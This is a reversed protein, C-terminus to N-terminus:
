AVPPMMQEPSGMEPPMGGPVGPIPGPSMQPPPAVDSQMPEAPPETTAKLLDEARSIWDRILNLSKEGMKKQRALNYYSNGLKLCLQLDDYPEPSIFVGTDLMEEINKEIIHYSSLTLQTYRDTDPMDLLDLGMTKDVLGASMMLNVYELKGAPESPLSSVPFVQMIYGDKDIKIEDFDLKELGEKRSFSSVEYTGQEEYIKHVLDIMKTACKIHFDEYRRATQSFRETEINHYTSLAKGSDLGAPKEGKASLESLGVIGYGKQELYEVQHFQDPHVSPNVHYIPPNGRYKIIIGPDSTFHLPNIASGEEIFIKPSASLRMCTQIHMLIRNLEIQIGTLEEPIGVGFFGLIPDSYRSFVFPFDEDLYEEDSFSCTEIGFVHRGPKDHTGLHYADYVMVVEMFNRGRNFTDGKAQNIATTHEPFLSRLYDRPLFRVRYMTKPKGYLSDNPDVLIETPFVREVKVENTLRDEYIHACGTGFIFEDRKCQAAVAHFDTQYFLGNMFKNLQRAQMEAKFTGGSTMFMPNIKNKCIKALLTDVCSRIINLTLRPQRVQTMSNINTLAYVPNTISYDDNAYLRAHRSNKNIVFDTEQNLQTVNGFITKYAEEKSVNWWLKYGYASDYM